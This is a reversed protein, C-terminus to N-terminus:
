DLSTLINSACSSEISSAAVLAAPVRDKGDDSQHVSELIWKFHERGSDTQKLCHPITVGEEGHRCTLRDEARQELLSM